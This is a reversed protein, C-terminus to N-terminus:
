TEPKIVLLFKVRVTAPAFDPKGVYKGPFSAQPVLVYIWHIKMGFVSHLLTLTLNWYASAALILLTTCLESLNAAETCTSTQDNSENWKKWYWKRQPPFDQQNMLENNYDQYTKFKM